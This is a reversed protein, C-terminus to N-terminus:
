LLGFARVIKCPHRRVKGNLREYFRDGVCFWDVDHECAVVTGNLTEGCNKLDNIARM